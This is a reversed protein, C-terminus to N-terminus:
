QDFLERHRTLRRRSRELANRLQEEGIRTDGNRLADVMLAHEGHAIQFDYDTFTTLLVRRYHQTTNWFGIIMSTLRGEADGGYCALHLRRDGQLWAPPDHAMGELRKALDSVEELEQEDLRGIREAFALPELRERIKYIEVCEDFDLVAVRAGSNPRITVLGETELQRLAERVPIRSVELEQAVAEQRVPEGPKLRGDFIADRLYRAVTVM